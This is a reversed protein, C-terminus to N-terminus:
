FKGSRGGAPGMPGMAGPGMPGMAGPGMPGMAGPGMPGMGPYGGMMGGPMYGPVRAPQREWGLFQGWTLELDDKVKKTKMEELNGKNVEDRLQVAKDYFDAYREDIEKAQRYAEVAENFQLARLHSMGRNAFKAASTFTFPTGEDGEKVEPPKLEDSAADGPSGDAPVAPAASAAPGPTPAVQGAVAGPQGGLQGAVRGVTSAPPGTSAEDLTEMMGMTTQLEAMGTQAHGPIVGVLAATVSLVAILELFKM